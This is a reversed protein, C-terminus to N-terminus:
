KGEKRKARIKDSIKVIKKWTKRYHPGSHNPLKHAERNLKQHGAQGKLDCCQARWDGPKTSCLAAACLGKGHVEELAQIAVPEAKGVQIFDNKSPNSSVKGNYMMRKTIFKATSGIM